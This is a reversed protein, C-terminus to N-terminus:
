AAAECPALAAFYGDILDLQEQQTQAQNFRSRFEQAGPWGALYWACHKRAFGLGAYSGYFAHLEVLHQRLIQHIQAQPLPPLQRGTDLYHQIERFIWPRGQAGRGIMVADAGTYLLVARAQEPTTIDGNAFLPIGIEHRIAAITDFEASGNFMDCRTRGHVALAQIGADEAIRAIRVGNRQEHSWGTRIKLTVPVDVAQVVATLIQQVLAEDRLLASGAAQKLVKKVPCGMNIDIIQAGHEVNLRAAQAMMAPDSGAIQVTRPAEEDLHACRQWSRERNKGEAFQVQLNASLMETATLAAGFRRCLTRFPKDSVGAM